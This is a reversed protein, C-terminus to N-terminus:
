EAYPEDAITLNQNSKSKHRAIDERSVRKFQIVAEVLSPYRFLMM